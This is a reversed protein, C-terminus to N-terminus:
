ATELRKTADEASLPKSLYYGQVLSNPYRKVFALQSATEVGEAVAILHLNEVMAFISEALTAKEVQKKREDISQIFSKDIKVGCVPLQQIYQLSSYGTCFDDVLFLFGLETTKNLTAVMKKMQEVIATETIEFIINERRVKTDELLKKLDALWNKDLLQKPSVNITLKINTNYKENWQEFQKFAEALIWQGIVLIQGSEEATTIVQEPSISKDFTGEDWRLLTEFGYLKQDEARFIPQYYLKFQNKSVAERIQNEIRTSLLIEEELKQTYTFYYSKRM